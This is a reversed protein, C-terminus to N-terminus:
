PMEKFSSPLPSEFTMRQRTVPHIFDIVSAHLALRHFLDVEHKNGYKKDGVVPHGIAAFQVWIQNTRGTVLGIRVGTLWQGNSEKEFLVWYRLVSKKGGNDSFACTVKDTGDEEQLWSVLEGEKKKLRGSVIAIYEKRIVLDSWHHRLAEQIDKRRAFILVGSTDKDLRHVIFVKANENQRRVYTKLLSFATIEQSHKHTEVTLLGCQKEVILFDSDEHLISLLPHQLSLEEYTHRITVTDGNKLVADGRSVTTDNVQVQHNHLLQKISTIHMGGLKSLLFTDLRGQMKVYFVTNNKTRIPM